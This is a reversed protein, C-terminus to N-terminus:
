GTFPLPAYEAPRLLGIVALRQDDKAPTEIEYYEVEKRVRAPM